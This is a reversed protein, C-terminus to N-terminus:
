KFLIKQLETMGKDAPSGTWIKLIQQTWGAPGSITENFRGPILLLLKDGEPKQSRVILFSEKEKIDGIKRVNELFSQVPASKLDAKNEKLGDQFTEAINKAPVDRLYTMQIGALPSDEFTKPKSDWTATMPLLLEGVYVKFSMFAINKKRLGHAVSKLENGDLESLTVTQTLAVKEVKTETTKREFGNGTMALFFAAIALGTKM